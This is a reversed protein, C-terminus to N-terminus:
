RRLLRRIWGARRVKRGRKANYSRVALELGSRDIKELALGETDSLGARKAEGSPDHLFRARFEADVYVRALFAEFEPTTM